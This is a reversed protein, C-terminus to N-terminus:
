GKSRGRVWSSKWGKKNVLSLFGQACKVPLAFVTVLCSLSQKEFKLM